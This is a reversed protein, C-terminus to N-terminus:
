PFRAQRPNGTKPRTYRNPPRKSTQAPIRNEHEEGEWTLQASITIKPSRQGAPCPPSKWPVEAKPGGSTLCPNAASQRNPSKRRKPRPQPKRARRTGLDTPRFNHNQTVEAKGSMAPIELPGSSKPWRLEPLSERRATQKPAKETKPPFATKTSKAKGPWNPPFQSKPHGRGQRVHRPNGPSRQKQAM